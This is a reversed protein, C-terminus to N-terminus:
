KKQKKSKKWLAYATAIAFIGAIITLTKGYQHKSKM